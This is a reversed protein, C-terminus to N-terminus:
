GIFREAWGVPPMMCSDKKGFWRYRNAAIWDYLYDRIGKPIIHTITILSWVGGISRLLEIVASSRTYRKGNKILVVTSLGQADNPLDEALQSQLTAYRINGKKDHRWAWQVVNNCLICEGDFLLIPHDHSLKILDSIM